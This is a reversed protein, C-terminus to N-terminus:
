DWEWAGRRKVYLGALTSWAKLSTRSFESSSSSVAHNMSNANRREYGGGASMRSSHLLLRVGGGFPM